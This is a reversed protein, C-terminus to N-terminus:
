NYISTWMKMRDPPPETVPTCPLGPICFSRLDPFSSFFPLPFSIPELPAGTTDSLQARLIALDPPTVRYNMAFLHVATGLFRTTTTNPSVYLPNNSQIPYEDLRHSGVIQDNYMVDFRRGERLISLFIWKQQPMPPLELYEFKQIGTCIRVRASYDNMSVGAPALQFEFSNQVGILTTYNDKNTNQFHTTRDGMTVNFFGCVTSSSGSFRTSAEQSSLLQTQTNLQIVTPALDSPMQKAYVYATVLYVILALTFVILIWFLMTPRENTWFLQSLAATFSEM